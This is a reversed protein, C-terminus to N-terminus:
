KDAVFKKISVSATDARAYLTCNRSVRFPWSEGALLEVTPHFTSGDWHGIEVFNASGAHELFVIGGAATVDGLTIAEPSTGIIQSGGVCQPASAVFSLEDSFARDVESPGKSGTLNYSFNIDAM